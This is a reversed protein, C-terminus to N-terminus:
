NQASSEYYEVRSGRRDAYSRAFIVVAYGFVVVAWIRVNLDDTLVWQEVM